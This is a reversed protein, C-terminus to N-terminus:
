YDGSFYFAFFLAAYQPLLPAATSHRRTSGSGLRGNKSDDDFYYRRHTGDQLIEAMAEGVSKYQEGFAFRYVVPHSAITFYFTPWSNFDKFGILLLIGYAQVSM